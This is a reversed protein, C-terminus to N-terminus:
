DISTPYLYMNAIKMWEVTGDNALQFSVTDGNTTSFTYGQVILFTGDAQAILRDLM